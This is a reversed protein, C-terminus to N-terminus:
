CVELAPARGKAEDVFTPELSEKKGGTSDTTEEVGDLLGSGGDDRIGSRICSFLNKTHVRALFIANNNENPIQRIRTNSPKDYAITREIAGL